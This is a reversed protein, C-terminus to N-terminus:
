QITTNTQKILEAWWATEKRIQEGFAEPTNGEPEAGLQTLRQKIEPKQLVQVCAQHLKEIIPRPTGKPAMLGKWAMIVYDNVGQEQFTPVDPLAAARTASPVAIARLNGAQVHPLLPPMNDIMVNIRNALLDTIAPGTGKYPIHQMDIGAKQNLLEGALHAPSGTGPSGYSISNPHSKAYAIFERLNNAPVKPNIAMLNHERTLATIPELDKAPNFPMDKYLSPNIVTPGAAALLLTYGDPEARAVLSGGINGAAGGKNEVVVTQGLIPQLAEALMRGLIDTSGGPAFPVILRIPHDPYAAHATFPAAMCAAAVLTSAILQRFM